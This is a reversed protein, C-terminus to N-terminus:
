DLEAIARRLEDNSSNSRDPINKLKDDVIRITQKNAAIKTILISDAKRRDEIFVKMDDIQSEYITRQEKLVNITEDKAKILEKYDIGARNKNLFSFLIILGAIILAAILIM